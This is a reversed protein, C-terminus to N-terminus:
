EVNTFIKNVIKWDGKIKNLSLFDFYNNGLMPLQAKVIANSGLIEISLIKMKFDEGLDKPSKRSKVGDLYEKVTKFYPTGNIDGFLLTQSHFVDELQAVNGTYIGNFYDTVITKIENSHTDYM